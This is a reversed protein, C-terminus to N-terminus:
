RNQFGAYPCGSWFVPANEMREALVRAHCVGCYNFSRKETGLPVLSVLQEFVCLTGGAAKSENLSALPGSEQQREILASFLRSKLRSPAPLTSTEDEKAALLDFFTDDPRVDKM